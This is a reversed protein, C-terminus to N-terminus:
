WYILPYGQSCILTDVQLLYFITMSSYLYNLELLFGENQNWWTWSFCNLATTSHVYLQFQDYLWTIM